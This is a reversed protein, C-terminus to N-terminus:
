PIGGRKKLFKERKKCDREPLKRQNIKRLSEGGLCGEGKRRRLAKLGRKGQKKRPSIGSKLRVYKFATGSSTREKPASGV